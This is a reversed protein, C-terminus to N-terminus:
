IFLSAYEMAVSSGSVELMFPVVLLIFSAMMFLCAVSQSFFSFNLLCVISQKSCLFIHVHCLLWNDIIELFTSNLCCHAVGVCQSSKLPSPYSSHTDTLTIYRYCCVWPFCRLATARLRHVIVGWSWQFASTYMIIWLPLLIVTKFCFCFLKITSSWWLMPFKNFPQLM